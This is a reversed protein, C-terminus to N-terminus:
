WFYASKAIDLFVSISLLLYLYLYYNLFVSISLLYLYLHYYNRIRKGKKSNKRNKKIFM